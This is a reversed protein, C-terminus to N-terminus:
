KLITYVYDLRGLVMVESKKSLIWKYLGVWGLSLCKDSGESLSAEIVFRVVLM